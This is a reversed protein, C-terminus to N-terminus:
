GELGEWAGDGQELVRKRWVSTLESPNQKQIKVITSICHYKMSQNRQERIIPTVKKVHGNGSGKKFHTTPDAVYRKHQCHKEGM